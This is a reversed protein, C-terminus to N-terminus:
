FVRHEHPRAEQVVGTVQILEIRERLIKVHLNRREEDVSSGNRSFHAVCQRLLGSVLLSFLTFTRYQRGWRNDQILGRSEARREAVTILVRRLQRTDWDCL